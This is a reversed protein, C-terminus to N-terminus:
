LLGGELKIPITIKEGSKLEIYLEINSESYLPEFELVYEAQGDIANGEGQLYQYKIIRGKIHSNIHNLPIEKSDTKITCAVVTKKSSLKIHNLDVTIGNENFEKDIVINRTTREYSHNFNSIMKGYKNCYERIKKEAENYIPSGIKRLAVKDKENVTMKLIDSTLEKLSLTADKFINIAEQMKEDTFIIEIVTSKLM